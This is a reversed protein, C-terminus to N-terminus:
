TSPTGRGTGVRGPYRTTYRMDYRRSARGECLGTGTSLSQFYSRSPPSPPLLTAYASWLGSPIPTTPGGSAHQYPALRDSQPVVRGSLPALPETAVERSGKSECGGPMPKWREAQRELADRLGVTSSYGRDPGATTVVLLWHPRRNPVTPSEPLGPLPQTVKRLPTVTPLVDPPRDLDQAQDRGTRDDHRAPSKVDTRRSEMIRGWPNRM